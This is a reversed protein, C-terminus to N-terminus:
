ATAATPAEGDRSPALTVPILASNLVARASAGAMLGGLALAFMDDALARDAVPGRPTFWHQMWDLMGTIARAAVRPTTPLSLEGAAVGDALLGELAATYERDMEAFKARQAPQGLLRLYVFAAPYHEAFIAVQVRFLERLCAVVPVGNRRQEGLRRMETLLRHAPEEVVAYLLEEKSAVYNYISGKLIGVRAGIGELTAHEYGHERFEEGAARLIEARRNPRPM